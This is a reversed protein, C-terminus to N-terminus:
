FRPYCVQPYCPGGTNEYLGSPKVGQLVNNIIEWGKTWGGDWSAKKFKSNLWQEQGVGFKAECCGMANVISILVFFVVVLVAYINLHKNEQL